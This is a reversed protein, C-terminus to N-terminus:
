LTLIYVDDPTLRREPTFILWDTVDDPAYTGTHGEHIGEIYYPEQTLRATIHGNQIDTVEFWIHERESTDTRHPKDMLLGIKVLLHNRKDSFAQFLFEMREAALAKMRSTESNSLMYIPNEKLVNDYIALSSYNGEEFSKQSPYVFIACTDQNHGEERDKKGGLMEPPYCSVAEEWDILTVVLPIDQAAYALFFPEKCKPTEEEDLLRLALTELTNYHTQYTEKDSNLVELEPRGCRNLGHTHLWVCDDEGSVAQATFLYRPAPPVTSQAALVAWRGSLIKESSDDLVALLDPLLAYILKLQLHYSILPNTGFEMEVALGFEAAQVAEADVDPFLHQCRYLEPLAFNSPYVEASYLEGEYNIKLYLTEEEMHESLLQFAGATHLRELILELNEVDRPQAPVAFM